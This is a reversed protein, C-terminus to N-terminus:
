TSGQWSFLGQILLFTRWPLSVFHYSCSFASFARPQSVHNKKHLAWYKQIHELEHRASSSLSIPTKWGCAAAKMFQNPLQNCSSVQTQKWPSSGFLLQQLFCIAIVALLLMMIRSNKIGLIWMDFNNWEQEYTGLPEPDTLRPTINFAACSGLVGAPLPLHVVSLMM